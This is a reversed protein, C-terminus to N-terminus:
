FDPLLSISKLFTQLDAFTMGSVNKVLPGRRGVSYGSNVMDHGPSKLINKAPIFRLLPKQYMAFRPPVGMSQRYFKTNFLHQADGLLINALFYGNLLVVFLAPHFHHFVGVQPLVKGM